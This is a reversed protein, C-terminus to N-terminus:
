FVFSEKLCIGKKMSNVDNLDMYWDYSTSNLLIQMFILSFHKNAEIGKMLLFRENIDFQLM